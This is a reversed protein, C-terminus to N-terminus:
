TTLFYCKFPFNEVAFYPSGTSIILMVFCHSSCFPSSCVLVWLFRRISKYRIDQFPARYSSGTCSLTEGATGVHWWYTASWTQLRHPSMLSRWLVPAWLHTHHSELVCELFWVKVQRWSVPVSFITEESKQMSTTDNEIHKFSQFM